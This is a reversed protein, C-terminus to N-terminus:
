SRRAVRNALIALLLGLSTYGFVVEATVIIEGIWHKPVIDGFGLTTYTVISYYFPSILSQSSNSYDMLGWDFHMDMFYILGFVMAIVLSYLLPKSLSRGYDIWAWAKFLFRRLKRKAPSPTKEIHRELTDLYDQDKADRVFLANGFCSDLGRISYYHGRMSHFPGYELGMLNASALTANCLDADNIIARTFDAGTMDAERLDAATLNAEALNARHFSAGRLDAGIFEAEVLFAHSLNAGTLFANTLDAKYLEAGALDAGSLDAGALVAMKLNAQQLNAEFLAAGSLDAESLNAATLDMDSLDAGSLQPQIDPQQARWNNWTEVAKELIDLHTSETM